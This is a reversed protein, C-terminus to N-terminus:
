PLAEGRLRAVDADVMDAILGEFTQRPQWDLQLAARDPTGVLFPVPEDREATVFRQWDLGLHGYAAAVLDRVSRGTGSALVYDRAESRAMLILGEVVDSAAQWDVCAGLNLLRLKETEGRAARAAAMTVKRSVFGPARLPSEHNFLIAVSARLGDNDRRERLLDAAAIKTRGYYTAPDVPTTEDVRHERMRATWIQSSSAYILAGDTEAGILADALVEAADVNVSRMAAWTEPTEPGSDSSHHAAALHFIHGPREAAVLDTIAETDGVDIEVVQCGIRILAERRVANQNGPRVVAIVRDGIDQPGLERLRHCLLFGDQGLAGTVLSIGESM